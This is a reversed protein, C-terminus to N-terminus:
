FKNKIYICMCVYVCVYMWVCICGCVFVRVKFAKTSAVQCVTAYEDGKDYKTFAIGTEETIGIGFIRLIITQDAAAKTVGEDSMSHEKEAHEVRFGYIRFEDDTNSCNKFSLIFM